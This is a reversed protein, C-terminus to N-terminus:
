FRHAIGATVDYNPKRKVLPSVAVDNQLRRAELNGVVIWDKAVDFSWLLGASVNMLSGGPDYTPLGTTASRATSIGYFFGTSKANGWVAQTFIGANFRGQHFM